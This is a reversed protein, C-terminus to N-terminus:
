RGGVGVTGQPLLSLESDGGRRRLLVTRDGRLRKPIGGGAAQILRATM